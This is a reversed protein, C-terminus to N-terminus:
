NPRAYLKAYESEPYKLLAADHIAAALEGANEISHWPDTGPPSGFSL